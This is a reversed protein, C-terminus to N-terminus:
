RRTMKSGCKPCDVDICPVGRQHPVTAGCNSCICERDAGANQAGTGMGRGNRRGQGSDRDRGGMQSKGGGRGSGRGRGGGSSGKPSM